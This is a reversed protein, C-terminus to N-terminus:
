YGEYTEQWSFYGGLVGTWFVWVDNHAVVSTPSNIPGGISGEFDFKDVGFEAGVQNVAKSTKVQM